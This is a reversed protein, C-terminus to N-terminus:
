FGFYSCVVIFNIVLKRPKFTGSSSTSPHYSHQICCCINGELMNLFIHKYFQLWVFALNNKHFYKELNSIIFATNGYSICTFSKIKRLTVVAFFTHNAMIKSKLKIKKWIWSDTHLPQWIEVINLTLILSIAIIVM